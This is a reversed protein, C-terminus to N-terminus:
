PAWTPWHGSGLDTQNTGDVNMVYLGSRAGFADYAIRKGDPSWVLDGIQGYNSSPYEQYDTLRTQNTGDANMVYINIHGSVFAIRQGDPSWIPNNCGDSGSRLDTTLRIRHTGNANM